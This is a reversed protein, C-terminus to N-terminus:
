SSHEEVFDKADALTEFHASGRVTTAVYTGAQL